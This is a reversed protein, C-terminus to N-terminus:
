IFAFFLCNSLSKGRKKILGNTEFDPAIGAIMGIKHASRRGMLIKGEILALATTKM